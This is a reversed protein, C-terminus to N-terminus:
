NKSEEDFVVKELCVHTLPKVKFVENFHDKATVIDQKCERLIM